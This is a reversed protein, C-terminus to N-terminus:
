ASLGVQVGGALETLQFRLPLFQEIVRMNTRAHETLVRTRFTGGGALALPILLQDSLHEGVPADSELYAAMEDCARAAVREARVGREGYASVVETAREHEASILLVNGPGDAEPTRLLLEQEPLSLRAQVVGLERRAVQHPINAILAEAYVRRLPGREQLALPALARAPEVTLVIAGGGAPYFGHRELAHTLKVGMRELLPFFVRALFPYSPALPNHTGGEFRLTSSASALMLPPLVTQLVLCASGATGIAFRHEGPRLAGPRFTLETSHLEAGRTEAGCIAAAANVATLHQRMLGGRARQKRIQTIAFPKGTLVSLSLASRLIQGGGASGDVQIWETM